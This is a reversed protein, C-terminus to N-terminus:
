RSDSFLLLRLSYCKYCSMDVSAKSPSITIVKLKAIQINLAAWMSFLYLEYYYKVACVDSLYATLMYTL